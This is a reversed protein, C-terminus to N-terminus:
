SPGSKQKAKRKGKKKGATQVTDSKDVLKEQDESVKEQCTLLNANVIDKM